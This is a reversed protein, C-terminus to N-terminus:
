LKTSSEDIQCMVSRSATRTINLNVSLGFHEIEPDSQCRSTMQVLCAPLLFFGSACSPRETLVTDDLEAPPLATCGGPVGLLLGILACLIFPEM